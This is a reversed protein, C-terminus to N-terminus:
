PGCSPLSTLSPESTVPLWWNMSSPRSAPNSALWANLWKRKDSPRSSAEFRQSEISSKWKFRTASPACPSSTPSADSFPRLSRTTRPVFWMSSPGCRLESLGALPAPLRGPLEASSNDSSVEPHASDVSAEEPGAGESDAQMVLPETEAKPEPLKDPPEVPTKSSTPRAPIPFPTVSVSRPCIPEEVEREEAVM